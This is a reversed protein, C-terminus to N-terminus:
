SREDGNVDVTGLQLTERHAAIKSVNNYYIIKSSLNWTGFYITSFHTRQVPFTNEETGTRRTANIANRKTKNQEEEETWVEENGPKREEESWM